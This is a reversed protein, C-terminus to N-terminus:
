GNGGWGESGDDAPMEFDDLRGAADEGDRDKAPLPNERNRSRLIDQKWWELARAEAQKVALDFEAPTLGGTGRSASETVYLAIQAKVNERDDDNRVGVFERPLSYGEYWGRVLMELTEKQEGGLRRAEVVIESCRQAALVGWRAAIGHEELIRAVGWPDYLCAGHRGREPVVCRRCRKAWTKRTGGHSQGALEAIQRVTLRGFQSLDLRSAMRRELNDVRNRLENGDTGACEPRVPEKDEPSGPAEALRAVIGDLSGGAPYPLIVSVALRTEPGLDAKLQESGPFAGKTSGARNPEHPAEHTANM